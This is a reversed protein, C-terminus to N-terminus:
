GIKHINIKGKNNISINDTTLNHGLFHASDVVWKHGDSLVSTGQNNICVNGYLPIIGYTHGVNSPITFNKKFNVKGFKYGNETDDFALSNVEIYKQSETSITYINYKYVSGVLYIDIIIYGLMLSQQFKATSSYTTGSDNTDSKFFQTVFDFSISYDGATNIKIFEADDRIDYYSYVREMFYRSDLATTIDQYIVGGFDSIDCLEFNTNDDSNTLELLPHEKIVSLLRDFMYSNYFRPSRSGDDGHIKIGFTSYDMDDINYQYLENFSYNLVGKPFIPILTDFNALEFFALYPYFLTTTNYEIDRLGLPNQIYNNQRTYLVNGLRNIHDGGVHFSVADYCYQTTFGDDNISINFNNNINLTDEEDQIQQRLSDLINSTKYCSYTLFSSNNENDTVVDSNLINNSPSKFDKFFNYTNTPSPSNQGGIITIYNAWSPTEIVNDTNNTNSSIYVIKAM